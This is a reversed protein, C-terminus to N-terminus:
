VRARWTFAPTRRELFAAVGEAPDDSATVEAAWKEVLSASVQGEAVMADVMSKSAQQTLRSRPGALLGAFESLREELADPVHLEDVLGIRLAREADILEASFLLHKTASPGILHVARELAPAPYVIGLRAPTIGFVASTDAIRLDCSTAIQVGGGVCSGAICAITPQPMAALAAAAELNARLYVTDTVRLGTVDAGACFHRGSGRVITVAVDPDNALSRCLEGLAQWMELSVANRKDPRNLTITAVGADLNATVLETV